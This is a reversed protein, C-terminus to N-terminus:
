GTGNSSRACRHWWRRISEARWSSASRRATARSWLRVRTWRASRRIKNRTRDVEPGSVRTQDFTVEIVDTCVFPKQSDPHRLRLAGHLATVIGPASGNAWFRYASHGLLRDPDACGGQAPWGGVMHAPAFPLMGILQLGEVVGEPTEFPELLHRATLAVTGKDSDALTGIVGRADQRILDLRAIPGPM